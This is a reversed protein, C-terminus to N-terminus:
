GGALQLVKLDPNLLKPVGEEVKAIDNKNLWLEQLNNLSVVLDISITRLNNFNMQLVRLNTLGRLSWRSVSVIENHSM